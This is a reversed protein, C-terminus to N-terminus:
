SDEKALGRAFREQDLDAIWLPQLLHWDVPHAAINTQMHNAVEQVMAQLGDAEHRHAIPPSITTGWGKADFYSHAVLLQAGTDLALKAAGAPMRTEEGFFQVPIGHRRLDREGLLCVINGAALTEKLAPFPAKGGTLPLVHFGLSERFEVFADYLAEPKLREAVTTFTGYRHALYMGAMDWNGSHPLILVVGKDSALAAELHEVGDVGRAYIDLINKDGVLKPLRFAELWYRAYSRMAARVLADDVNHEGVVRALNKRLQPMGKGWKSAVDAGFNFLAQACPQPIYTVLKWGAKYGLASLTERWTTRAM